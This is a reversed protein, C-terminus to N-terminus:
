SKLNVEIPYRQQIMSVFQAKAKPDTFQVSLRDGAAYTHKAISKAIDGGLIYGDLIERLKEPGHHRSVSLSVKLKRNKSGVEGEKFNEFGILPTNKRIVLHVYGKERDLDDSVLNEGLAKIARIVDPYDKPQFRITVRDLKQEV